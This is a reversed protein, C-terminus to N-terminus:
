FAFDERVFSSDTNLIEKTRSFLKGFNVKLSNYIIDEYITSVLIRNLIGSAFPYSEM